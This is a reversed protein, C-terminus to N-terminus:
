LKRRSRGTISRIESQISCGRAIYRKIPGDSENQCDWSFFAEFSEPELVQMRFTDLKHRKSVWGDQEIEIAGGSFMPVDKRKFINLLAEVARFQLDADILVLGDPTKEGRPM